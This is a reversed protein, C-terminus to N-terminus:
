DAAPQAAPAVGADAGGGLVKYLTVRNTAEVLSLTILDQQASYLTRQATLAQLYSDIGNRWRADALTYGRQSAAVLARQANLREDLRARVALADAVEGFATQITKEYSAVATDRTIRAADLTAQLAGGDFIPLSVSPVFSRTRSGGDFLRSLANSGVGATTTLSISPFMAARAAGIDANAAQLTHEASLVDPRDLLVRSSLAPALPALMVAGAGDRASPLLEDPVSAGVVLELATRAQDLTTAYTAVDVRASEVTSQISALDVGSSAGEGHLSETLKLTARQSELTHQAVELQQRNAAVALWDGAVEAVLSLRTARQTEATALFTQAAEDQLSRVRGFLDLEWSSLGVTASAARSAQATDAARAATQSVTADITPLLAASQVRYQARAKDINLVAVRLDRNNALALAIVQRLRTDLFVARWDLAAVETGATDGPSAARADRFGTPVPAAPRQYAPALSTCGALLATCAALVWGTTKLRNTPHSTPRKM